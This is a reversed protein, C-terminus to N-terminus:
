IDINKFMSVFLSLAKSYNKKENIMLYKSNRNIMEFIIIAIDLITNKKLIVVITPMIIRIYKNWPLFYHKKCYLSGSIIHKPNPSWCLINCETCKFNDKISIICRKCYKNTFSAYYTCDASNCMVLSTNEGNKVGCPFCLGISDKHLNKRKRYRNNCDKCRAHSSHNNGM